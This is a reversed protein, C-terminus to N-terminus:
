RDPPASPQAVDASYVSQPISSDHVTLVCKENNITISAEFIEAGSEEAIYDVRNLLDQLALGIETQKNPNLGLNRWTEAAHTEGAKGLTFFNKVLSEFLHKEGLAEKLFDIIEKNTMGTDPPLMSCLDAPLFTRMKEGNVRPGVWSFYVRNAYGVPWGLAVLSSSHRNPWDSNVSHNPM